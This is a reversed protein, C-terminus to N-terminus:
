IAKSIEVIVKPKLLYKTEYTVAVSWVRQLINAKINNKITLWYRSNVKLCINNKM